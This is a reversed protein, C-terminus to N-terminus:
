IQRINGSTAADGAIIPAVVGTDYVRSFDSLMVGGGRRKVLLDTSKTLLWRPLM